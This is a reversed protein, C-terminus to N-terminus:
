RKREINVDMTCHCNVTEPAGLSADGPYDAGNSFKEDLGVTEGDMAAHSDRPQASDNHRWTKTRTVTDTDEPYAQKVAEQTAFGCVATAYTQACRAVRVAILALFALEAETVQKPDGIDYEQMEAVLREYAEENFLEARREAMARIFNATRASDWLASDLGIDALASM